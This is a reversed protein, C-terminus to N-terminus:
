DTLDSQKLIKSDKAYDAIIAKLSGGLKAYGSVVAAKDDEKNKNYGLINPAHEQVALRLFRYETNATNKAIEDELMHAGKKFTKVKGNVGKVFGAKKMLLAGRYAVILSTSKEQDLRQIMDDIGKESTSSFAEYFEKKDVERFRSASLIVM